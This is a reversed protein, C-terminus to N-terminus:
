LFSKLLFHRRFTKYNVKFDSKVNLFSGGGGEWTGAHQAFVMSATLFNAPTAGSTFRIGNCAAGQIQFGPCVDGPTWFLPILPGVFFSELFTKRFGKM